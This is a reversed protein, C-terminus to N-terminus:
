GEFPALGARVQVRRLRAWAIASWVIQDLIEEEIEILLESLPRDFTVDGYEKNGHIMRERLKPELINWMTQWKPDGPPCESETSM